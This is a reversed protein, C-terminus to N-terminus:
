SRGYKKRWNKILEDWFFYGMIPYFLATILGPYYSKALIAKITHHIETVFVLSFLTLLFLLIRTKRFLLFLLPVSLWWIFHSAWYFIEPTTGFYQAGIVMFSDIYPFGTLNEELGHAYILLLSILFLNELRKSTM